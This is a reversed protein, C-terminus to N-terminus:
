EPKRLDAHRNHTSADRRTLERPDDDFHWLGLTDADAALPGQPVSSVQRVGRSIRVEDIM